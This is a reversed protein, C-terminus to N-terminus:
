DKLHRLFDGGVEIRALCVFSQDPNRSCSLGDRARRIVFGDSAEESSRGRMESFLLAAEAGGCMWLFYIGGEPKYSPHKPMPPTWGAKICASLAQSLGSDAYSPGSAVLLAIIVLFCRM